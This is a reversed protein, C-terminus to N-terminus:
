VRVVGMLLMQRLVKQQQQLKSLKQVQKEIFSDLCDMVKIVGEIEDSNYYIKAKLLTELKIYPMSSKQTGFCIEKEFNKELYYMIYKIPFTFDRLVYTRQYANFKGSYYKIDGIDGNGAILLAECDFAYEDITYTEKACTFFPYNGNEQMANADMKGTTISCIEGLMVKKWGNRPMLLKQMIANRQLKLRELLKEQLMIVEDWSSLIEVIKKQEKDSAIYLVVKSLSEQGVNIHQSGAAYRIIQKRIKYTKLLENLYNPNYEAIKKGRIVFGSYTATNNADLYVNSKGADDFNESSRQFLIDGYTVSYNALIKEDIDVSGIINDYIIPKEALIDNVSILKIGTGFKEKDANIGNKFSLLDGLEYKKWDLPSIGIETKKYGSPIVGFNIQKIREKIDNNM